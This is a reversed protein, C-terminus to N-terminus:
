IEDEMLADDYIESSVENEDGIKVRPEWRCHRRVNHSGKPQERWLNALLIYQREMWVEQRDVRDGFDRFLREFQLMM